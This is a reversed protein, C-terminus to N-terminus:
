NSWEEHECSHRFTRLRHLATRVGSLTLSRIRQKEARALREKAGAPSTTSHDVVVAGPGLRPAFRAVIADVVGDEPLTMHVYDAAV